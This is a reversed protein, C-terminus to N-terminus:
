NQPVFLTYWPGDYVMRWDPRKAFYSAPLEADYKALLVADFQWRALVEDISWTASQRRTGALIQADVLMQPIFLQARSDVFSSFGAQIAMGGANYSTYLRQPDTQELAAVLEPPFVWYFQNNLAAPAVYVGAALAAATVLPFVARGATRALSRLRGPSVRDAVRELGAQLAPRQRLLFVAAAVCWWFMGRVHLLTFAATLLLPALPELLLPRRALLWILLLLGMALFFAPANDWAAPQWENVRVLASNADAAFFQGYLRPGYPNCCGALVELTLLLAFRRAPAGRRHYLSGRRFPPLLALLGYLGTLWLVLPLSAGHVNAWLVVLVPLLFCRRHEPHEWASQLLYLALAFFVLALQQPRPNGWTYRLWLWVGLIVAWDALRHALRQGPPLLGRGWLGFLVLALLVLCGALYVVAGIIETAGLLSLRYLLWDALWSHNVYELGQQQAAWSLGDVGPLHGGQALARGLAIHWYFDSDCYYNSGGLVWLLAALPPITLALVRVSASVSRSM